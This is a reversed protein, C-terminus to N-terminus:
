LQREKSVENAYSELLAMWGGPAAISARLTEAADGFRELNRHELKVETM